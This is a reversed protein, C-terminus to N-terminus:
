RAGQLESCASESDDLFTDLLEPYEDEMVEQLGSLVERDVHKEAM